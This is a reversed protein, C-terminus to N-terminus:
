LLRKPVVEPDFRLDPFEIRSVGESKGAGWKEAGIGGRGQFPFARSSSLGAARTLKNSKEEERLFWCVGPTGQYRWSKRAASMIFMYVVMSTLADAEDVVVPRCRAEMRRARDRFDGFLGRIERRLGNIARTRVAECTLLFIKKFGERERIAM